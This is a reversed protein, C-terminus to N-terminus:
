TKKAGEQLSSNRSLLLYRNWSTKLGPVFFARQPLPTSKADLYPFSGVVFFGTLGEWDSESLEVVWDCNELPTYRSPEELNDANYTANIDSFPSPLEGDFGSKLWRVEGSPLFFTSPYQYWMKGVCVTENIQLRDHLSEWAQLPANYYQTVALIRSCGLVIIVLVFLREMVWAIASGYGTFNKLWRCVRHVTAAASVAILPYIPYLFREEKHAMGSFCFLWLIVSLNIKQLKTSGSLAAPLAAFAAFNFNLALNKLYFYWPEVGYLNQGGGDDGIHMNYLFIQLPPFVVKHYFSHDIMISVILIYMAAFAGVEVCWRFGKRQLPVWALTPLLVGCFPWGILGAVSTHILVFFDEDDLHNAWALMLFHMVFTQPLFAVSSFFMGASFLFVVAATRAVQPGAARKVASLLRTESYAGFMGIGARLTYFLSKGKLGFPILGLPVPYYFLIYLWSRLAYEHAYEWTQQGRQNVLWSLPEWYNFTEDCDMIPSISAGILRVASLLFFLKWSFSKKIPKPEADQTKSNTPVQESTVTEPTKEKKRRRVM